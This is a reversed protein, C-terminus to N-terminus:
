QFTRHADKSLTFLWGMSLAISLLSLFVGLGFTDSFNFMNISFDPIELGFQISYYDTLWLNIMPTFIELTGNGITFNQFNEVSDFQTYWLSSQVIKKGITLSGINNSCYCKQQNSYTNSRTTIESCATLAYPLFM